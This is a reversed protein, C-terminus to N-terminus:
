KNFKVYSYYHGSYSSGGAHVVIGFLELKTHNDHKHDSGKDIFKSVDIVEPYHIMKGIKRMTNTFRKLQFTIVDPVTLISFGKRANSLQKCNECRYKNAGSLEDM